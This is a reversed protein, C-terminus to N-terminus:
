LIPPNVKFTIQDAQEIESPEKDLNLSYTKKNNPLYLVDISGDFKAESKDYSQTSIHLVVGLFTDLAVITGVVEDASPLNWIGSLTFYLTGIAPLLIQTIFKVKDYFKNTFMHDIVPPEEAHPDVM